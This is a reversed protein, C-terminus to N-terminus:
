AAAWWDAINWDWADLPPGPIYGHLASTTLTLLPWVYLPTVDFQQAVVRQQVQKLAAVRATFDVTGRETQLAADLTPDSIHGYNTGGPNTQSPIASTHYIDFTFDPDASGVFALLAIDFQGTALLGQNTFDAFVKTGPYTKVTVAVGLAQWQAALLNAATVRATTDDTVLTFHLPQGNAGVRMGSSGKRYGASDLLSGAKTLDPTTTAPLASDFDLAQPATISTAVSSACPTGLVQQIIVCKNVALSLAERVAVKGLAPNAQNYLVHEYGIAPTTTLKGGTAARLAALDSPGFDQALTLSGGSFADIEDQRGHFIQFTLTKLFPGYFSASTYNPNPALTFHDDLMYDTIMYPGSTAQPQFNVEASATFQDPTLSKFEHQPLAFPLYTLYPGFPARFQVRVTQADVATVSTIVSYGGVNVAQTKPNMLTQWGFVFDAATLPQGDSWKLNPLLKMLVTTGDASVDGNAQTPVASCEDPLWKLDAGAVVCNGMIAHLITFDVQQDAFLPSVSDPSEWDGITVSGTPAPHSTGSHYAAASGLSACPTTGPCIPAYASGVNAPPTHSIPPSNSASGGNCTVLFCAALALPIIAHWPHGARTAFIGM